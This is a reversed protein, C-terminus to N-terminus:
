QSHSIYEKYLGKFLEKIVLKPEGILADSFGQLDPLKLQMIGFERAEKGVETLVDMLHDGVDAALGLWIVVHAAGEYIAKM